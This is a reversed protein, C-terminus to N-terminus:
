DMSELLAAALAAAEGHGEALPELVDRAEDKRDALTYCLGLAAAADADFGEDLLARLMQEAKDFESVVIHSMAMGIRAPVHGPRLELVSNYITRAQAAMGKHCGANAIDMLRSIQSDELM